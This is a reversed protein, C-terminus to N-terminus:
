VGGVATCYCECLCVAACRGEWRAAAACGRADPAWRGFLYRKEVVPFRQSHTGDKKVLSLGGYGQETAMAM